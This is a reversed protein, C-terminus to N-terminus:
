TPHFESAPRTRPVIWFFIVEGVVNLPYVTWAEFSPGAFFAPSRYLINNSATPGAPPSNRGCLAEKSVRVVNDAANVIQDVLPTGAEPHYLRVLASSDLFYGAL